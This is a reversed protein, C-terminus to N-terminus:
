MSSSSDRLAPNDAAPRALIGRFEAAGIQDRLEFWWRLNADGHQRMEHGHRVRSRRTSRVLDRDRAREATSARRVALDPAIRRHGIVDILRHFGLARQEAARIRGSHSRRWRNGSGARGLVPKEGAWSSKTPLEGNRRRYSM